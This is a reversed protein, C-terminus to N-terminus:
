HTNPGTSSRLILEPSIAIQTPEALQNKLQQILLTAARYGMDYAPFRVATLPPTMIEAIRDVALGVLSFDDPVEYGRERLANLAGVMPADTLAVVATLGPEEDLLSQTAQYIDPINYHTERYYPHLGHKQVANQFGKWGRIAPGLSRERLHSAFGIYGIKEHGLAVLHDYATVVAPTFDLELFSLGNDNACRGVMVFPHNYERLLDVRWDDLQIEMLIIGDVHVSRYLSRLFDANVPNTLMNFFYNFEGAAAAAGVMFELHLQNIPQQRPDHLPYLLAITRSQGASALRQAQAHPKYGTQEIVKLVQQRTSEAVDPKENLIRSVTSVSVGAIRAIDAITIDDTDSVM